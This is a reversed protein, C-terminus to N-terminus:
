QGIQVVQDLGALIDRSPVPRARRRNFHHLIPCKTTLSGNSPIGAHAQFRLAALVAVIISICRLAGSSKRSSFGFVMLRPIPERDGTGDSLSASKSFCTLVMRSSSICFVPVM